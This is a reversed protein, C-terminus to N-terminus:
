GALDIDPTIITAFPLFIYFFLSLIARSAGLAKSENLVKFSM